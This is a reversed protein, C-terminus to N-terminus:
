EFQEIFFKRVTPNLTEYFIEVSVKNPTPEEEDNVDIILNKNSLEFLNLKSEVSFCQIINESPFITLLCVCM